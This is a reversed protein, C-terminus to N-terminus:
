PNVLFTYRRPVFNTAYCLTAVDLPNRKEVWFMWLSDLNPKSPSLRDRSGQHHGPLRCSGRHPLNQPQPESVELVMNLQTQGSHCSSSWRCWCNPVQSDSM